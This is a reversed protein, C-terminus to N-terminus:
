YKTKMAWKWMFDNLETTIIGMRYKKYNTKLVWKWM